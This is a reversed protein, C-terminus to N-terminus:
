SMSPFTSIPLGVGDATNELRQERQSDSTEILLVRGPQGASGTKHLLLFNSRNPSLRLLHGTKEGRSEYAVRFIPSLLPWLHVIRNVEKASISLQSWFQIAELSSDNKRSPIRLSPFFYYAAISLLPDCYIQRIHIPFYNKTANKSNTLARIFGHRSMKKKLINNFRNLLAAFYDSNITQKSPFDKVTKAKKPASEGPSINSMINLMELLSNNNAQLAEKSMLAKKTIFKTGKTYASIRGLKELRSDDVNAKGMTAITRSINSEVHHLYGYQSQGCQSQSRQSQGRNIMNCNIVNRNIVLQLHNRQLQGRTAFSWTNCM